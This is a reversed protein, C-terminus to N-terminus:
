VIFQLLETRDVFREGDLQHGEHGRTMKSPDLSKISAVEFSPRPKHQNNITQGSGVLATVM